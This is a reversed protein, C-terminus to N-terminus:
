GGRLTPRGSWSNSRDPETFTFIPKFISTLSQVNLTRPAGPHKKYFDKIVDNANPVLNDHPEWTKEDYGKWKVLFQLKGCHLRSNVVEEVEYEEEDNIIDPPPPPDKVQSKFAPVDYQKLLVENFVPHITRWKRPLQLRYVSRGIKESIQFPGYHKDELKKRLRETTIHYGDLYVWDNPM